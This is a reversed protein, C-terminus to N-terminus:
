EEPVDPESSAGELWPSREEEVSPALEVPPELLIFLLSSRTTLSVFSTRRDLAMKMTIKSDIAAAAVTTVKKKRDRSSSSSKVFSTLKPHGPRINEFM